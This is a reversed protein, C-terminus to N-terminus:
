DLNPDRKGDHPAPETQALLRLILGEVDLVHTLMADYASQGDHGRIARYVRRHGELSRRLGETTQLSREHSERLLEQIGEIMKVLLMNKTTYAIALHFASDEEVFSSGASLSREQLSIYRSMEDLDPGTAREAALRAVQPEIIRRLELQEALTGRSAQLTSALDTVTLSLREARAFTGDGVRSEILGMAQLVSLAQRVTERSVQFRKALEREPPLRDGSRLVGRRMLDQLQRVVEEYARSRRVPEIEM